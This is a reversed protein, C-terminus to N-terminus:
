RNDTSGEPVIINFGRLIRRCGEYIEHNSDGRHFHFTLKGDEDKIVPESAHNGYYRLFEIEINAIRGRVEPTDDVGTVFLAIVDGEIKLRFEM